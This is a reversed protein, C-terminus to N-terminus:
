IADALGMTTLNFVDVAGLYQTFDVGVPTNPALSVKIQTTGSPVTYVTLDAIGTNALPISQRPITLAANSQNYLQIKANGSTTNSKCYYALLLKDGVSWSSTLLRLLVINASSGGGTNDKRIAYWSGAPLGDGATPAEATLSTPSGSLTTWSTTTTILPDPFLSTGSLLGRVFWPVPWPDGDFAALVAPYIAQALVIHGANNPHTGDADYSAHLDGTTTDMMPGFTDVLYVGHGGGNAASTRAWLNLWLNYAHVLKKATSTHSSGLPMTACVVVPIGKARAADVCARVDTQFQALPVSNAASNTGMDPGLILVDPDNALVADVRAAIQTSTESPVGARVMDSWRTIAAAGAYAGLLAGWSATSANSAASGNTVSAGLIAAVRGGSLASTRLRSSVVVGEGGVELGDTFNKVGAVDQNGSLLVVDAHQHGPQEPIPIGLPELAPDPPLIITM